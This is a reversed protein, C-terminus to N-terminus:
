GGKVFWLKYIIIWNYTYIITTVKGKLLFYDVYKYDITLFMTCM